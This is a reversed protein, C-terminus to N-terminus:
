AFASVVFYLGLAGGGLVAVLLASDVFRQSPRYVHFLWHPRLNRQPRTQYFNYIARGVERRGSFAFLSAVIVGTGVALQPIDIRVVEANPETKAGVGTMRLPL